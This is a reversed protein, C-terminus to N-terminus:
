GKPKEHYVVNALVEVEELSVKGNCNFCVAEDFPHGRRLVWAQEDVDWAAWADRAVDDSKCHACIYTVKM